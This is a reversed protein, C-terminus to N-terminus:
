PSKWANLANFLIRYPSTRGGLFRERLYLNGRPANLANFMWSIEATGQKSHGAFAKLVRACQRSGQPMSQPGIWKRRSRPEM